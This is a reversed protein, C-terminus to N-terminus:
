FKDVIYENLYRRVLKKGIQIQFFFDGCAENYIDKGTDLKEVNIANIM